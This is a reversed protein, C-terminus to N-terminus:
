WRKAWRGGVCMCVSSNGCCFHRGQLEVSVQTATKTLPLSHFPHSLDFVFTCNLLHQCPFASNPGPMTHQPTYHPSVSFVSMVEKESPQTEQLPNPVDGGNGVCPHPLPLPLIIVSIKRLTLLCQVLLEM